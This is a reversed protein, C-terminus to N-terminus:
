PVWNRARTHSLVRWNGGDRGLTVEWLEEIIREPSHKQPYNVWAWIEVKATDGSVVPRSVGLVGDFQKFRCATSTVTPGNNPSISYPVCEKSAREVEVTDLSVSMALARVLGPEQAVSKHPVRARPVANAGARREPHDVDFTGAALRFDTRRYEAPTPPYGPPGDGYFRQMYKVAPAMIATENYARQQGHVVVPTLLAALLVLNRM